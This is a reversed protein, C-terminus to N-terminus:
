RTFQLILKALETKPLISDDEINIEFDAFHDMVKGNKTIGKVHYSLIYNENLIKCNPGKLPLEWSKIASEKFLDVITKYNLLSGDKTYFEKHLFYDIVGDCDPIIMSDPPCLKFILGKMKANREFPNNLEFLPLHTSAKNSIIGNFSEFSVTIKVLGSNKDNYVEGFAVTNAELSNLNALASESLNGLGSIVKENEKQEFLRSYYRRQLITYCDSQILVEEFEETLSITTNNIEGDRTTFEWVYVNISDKNQAFSLISSSFCILLVFQPFYVRFKLKKM